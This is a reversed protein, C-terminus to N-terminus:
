ARFVFTAPSKQIKAMEPKFAQVSDIYVHEQPGGLDQCYAMFADKSLHKMMFNIVVQNRYPTEIFIITTKEQRSLKELRKIKEEFDKEEKPMYGVFYFAQQALGSLMLAKIISSPVGVTQIKVGQRRAKFVLESGPDAICPLGADSILGLDKGSKLLDVIEQSPATHENLVYLPLERFSPVKSFSFHKLLARASKESECVCGDLQSIAQAVESSFISPDQEDHVFNPILILKGTKSM